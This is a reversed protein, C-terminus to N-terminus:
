VKRSSQTGCQELTLTGLQMEKPHTSISRVPHFGRDEISAYLSLVTLQQVSCLEVLFVFFSSLMNYFLLANEWPPWLCSKIPQVFKIYMKSDHINYQGDRQRGDHHGDM